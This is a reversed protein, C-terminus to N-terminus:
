FANRALVFAVRIGIFTLGIAIWRGWGELAFRMIVWNRGLLALSVVTLPVGFSLAMFGGPRAGAVYAAGGSLALVAGSVLTAYPLWGWFGGFRTTSVARAVDRLGPAAVRLDVTQAAAAAGATYLLHMVRSGGEIVTGRLTLHLVHPFQRDPRADLSTLEVGADDCRADLQMEAISGELIHLEVELSFTGAASRAQVAAPRVEIAQVPAGGARMRDYAERREADRLVEYAVSLIKFREEAEARVPEPATAFRDPHQERALRRFAANVEAQRADARIGLTEYHDPLRSTTV